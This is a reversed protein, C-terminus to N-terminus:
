KTYSTHLKLKIESKSTNGFDGEFLLKNTQPDSPVEDSPPHERVYKDNRKAYVTWSVKMGPAGGGITFSNHNIEQKIHLNPMPAGIPTLQYSFETNIADFYDPLYVTAEGNNDLIVTGRYVNLVENSEIAFHILHMDTKYPHPIVFEKYGYVKLNQFYGTDAVYLNNLIYGNNFVYVNQAGADHPTYIGWGAIPDSSHGYVGIFGRGAIGADTGTYNSYGSIGVNVFYGITDGRVGVVGVTVTDPPNGRAIGIVGINANASAGPVIGVVGRSGEYGSLIEGRVGEATDAAGIGWVGSYNSGVTFGVIGDFASGVNMRGIVDYTGVNAIGLMKTINVPTGGVDVTTDKWEDLTTDVPVSGEVWVLLQPPQEENNGQRNIKISIARIDEPRYPINTISIRGRDISITTQITAKTGDKLQLTVIGREEVPRIEHVKGDLRVQQILIMLLMEM